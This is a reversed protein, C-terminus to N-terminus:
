FCGCVTTRRSCDKRAHRKKKDDERVCSGSGHVEELQNGDKVFSHTIEPEREPRIPDVPQSPGVPGTVVESSNETNFQLKTFDSFVLSSDFQSTCCDKPVSTSCSCGEKIQTLVKVVDEMSFRREPDACLCKETLRGLWFLQNCDHSNAMRQDILAPYNRDKLLPRAWGVLSKGWLRKDSAKKGTILQLLIVGYSYVDTKTSLVGSEAYEPALYGPSGVIDTMCTSEKTVTTALGFDGLLPVYDHTVLINNPTMDRHIINNEHLYLMGKAAGIAVKVRDQWSFPTRCYESLHQDLSGNCVYEYVLLRTNGASCSGLLMVVNEHRAKSLADIESKFEEERPPGGCTHQKVAIKMGQLEGKYVSGFGGESLFNRQSFGRTAAYLEAYTFKKKWGIKPRRNHCVLCLSNQYHEVMYCTEHNNGHQEHGVSTETQVTEQNKPSVCFGRNAPSQSGEFLLECTNAAMLSLTKEPCSVVMEVHQKFQM